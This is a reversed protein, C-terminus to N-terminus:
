SIPLDQRWPRYKELKYLILFILSITLFPTLPYGFLVQDLTIKEYPYSHQVWYHLSPKLLHFTYAGLFAGLFTFYSDKYGVGLQGFLTSPCTGSLVIGIGLLCGGVIDPLLAFFKWNLRGFGLMNLIIYVCISTAIASLFVKLMTFRKLQFQGIIQVPDTVKAKEFIFGVTTGMVIGFLITGIVSM